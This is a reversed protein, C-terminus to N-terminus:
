NAMASKANSSTLASSSGMSVTSLLVNPHISPHAAPVALTNLCIKQETSQKAEQAAASPKRRLAEWRPLSSACWRRARAVRCCTRTRTAATWAARLRVGGRCFDFFVEKMLDNASDLGSLWASREEKSAGSNSGFECYFAALQGAFLRQECILVSALWTRFQEAAFEDGSRSCIAAFCVFWCFQGSLPGVKLIDVIMPPMAMKVAFTCHRGMAHNGARRATFVNRGFLYARVFAQPLNLGAWLMALAIGFCNNAHLLGTCFCDHAGYLLHLLPRGSVM